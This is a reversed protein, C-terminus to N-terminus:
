DEISNTLFEHARRTFDIPNDVLTADWDAECCMVLAAIRALATPVDAYFEETTNIGDAVWTLVVPLIHTGPDTVVSVIITEDGVLLTTSLNTRMDTM